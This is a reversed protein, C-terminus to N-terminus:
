LLRANNSDSAEDEEYSDNSVISHLSEHDPQRLTPAASDIVFDGKFGTAIVDIKGLHEIGLNDSLSKRLHNQLAHEVDRLRGGSALKIRVKFHATRGKVMITVRPRSVAEIQACSSQVLEVIAARSVTVSGSDTTYAVVHNPQRKIVAVIVLVFLGIGIICFQLNDSCIKLLEIWTESM